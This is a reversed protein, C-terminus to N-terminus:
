HPKAHDLAPNSSEVVSPPGPFRADKGPPALNGTGGDPTPEILGAKSCALCCSKRGNRKPWHDRRAKTPNNAPSILEPPPHLKLMGLGCVAPCRSQPNAAKGSEAVNPNRIAIRM